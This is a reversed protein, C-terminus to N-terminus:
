KIKKFRKKLYARARQARKRCTEPSIGLEKAIDVLSRGLVESEYLIQFHPTDALNGYALHLSKSDTPAAVLDPRYENVAPFLRREVQLNREMNRLVLSLTKTLWAEPNPSNYFEDIRRCAVEFTQQVAEESLAYNHLSSEAYELLFKRQKYYKEALFQNQEETM